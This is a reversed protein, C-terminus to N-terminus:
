SWFKGSHPFYQDLRGAEMWYVRDAIKVAQEANQEVLFVTVGERNLRVIEKFIEATAKPSLGLSPEDLLLLEPQVVFAMALALIQQQGGSLTSANDKLRRSLFPFRSCVSNIEAKIKRANWVSSGAIELNEQVSLSSFVPRDQPVYAIKKRILCPTSLNGLNFGKWVIEGDLLTCLSFISKLVTSKGSGNLGIIAAIEGQAVEMNVQEIIPIKGYGATLNNIILM